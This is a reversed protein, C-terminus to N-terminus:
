TNVFEMFEFWLVRLTSLLGAKEPTLEESLPDRNESGDKPSDKVETDQPSDADNGAVSAELIELKRGTMTSDHIRNYPNTMIAEDYKRFIEGSDCNDGCPRGKRGIREVLRGLM